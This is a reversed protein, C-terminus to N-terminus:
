KKDTAELRPMPLLGQAYGMSCNELASCEEVVEDLSSM